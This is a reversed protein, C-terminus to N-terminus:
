AARGQRAAHVRGIGALASGQATKLEQEGRRSQRGGVLVGLRAGVRQSARVAVLGGQAADLAEGGILAGGEDGGGLGGRM